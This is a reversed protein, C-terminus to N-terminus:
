DWEVLDPAYSNSGYAACFAETDGAYTPDALVVAPKLADWLKSSPNVTNRFDETPGEDATLDMGVVVLDLGRHGQIVQGLLGVAQWVGVDFEQECSRVLGYGCDPAESLGHEHHDYIAVPACPGPNVAGVGPLDPLDPGGPISSLGMSWGASANLWTLYGYGTNADEFSPHTMRYVWDADLLREGNWRGGRLMLQGLKAMDFVDTVWGFGVVKSASQGAWTSNAMGLKDFLFHQTFDHLDGLREGDQQLALNIIDSLTNIQVSGTTDYEMKREGYAISENHAIMALVHAVHANANYSVTGLWRDVRDEDSLPKPLDRTEYAVMGTVLAGLTKTASWANRLLMDEVMYHHCLKGYRIVAWPANLLADAAALADPDLRCTERVEDAPVEEWPMPGLTWKPPPTSSGSDDGGDSPPPGADRPNPPGAEPEDGESGDLEADLSDADAEEDVRADLDLEPAGSAVECGALLAIASVLGRVSQFRKM